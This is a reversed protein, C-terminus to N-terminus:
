HGLHIEVESGRVRPGKKSNLFSGIGPSYYHTILALAPSNGNGGDALELRCDQSEETQFMKLLYIQM